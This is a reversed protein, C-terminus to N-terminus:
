DYFWILYNEYNYNHLSADAPFGAMNINKVKGHLLIASTALASDNWRFAVYVKGNDSSLMDVIYKGRNNEFVDRDIDAAVMYINRFKIQLGLDHAQDAFFELVRSGM